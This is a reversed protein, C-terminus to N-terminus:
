QMELQSNMLHQVRTRIESQSDRWYERIGIQGPSFVLNFMQQVYQAWTGEAEGIGQLFSLREDDGLSNELSFIVLDTMLLAQVERHSFLDLYRQNLVIKVVSSHQVELWTEFELDDEIQIKWFADEIKSDVLFDAVTVNAQTHSGSLQFKWSKELLRSNSAMPSGVKRALDNAFRTLIVAFLEIKGSIQEPPIDLCFSVPEDRISIPECQHQLKTGSCYTFVELYLLDSANLACEAFIQPINISVKGSVKTPLTPTWWGSLNVTEEGVLQETLEHDNILISTVVLSDAGAM